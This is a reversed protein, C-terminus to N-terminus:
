NRVSPTRLITLRNITLRKVMILIISDKVFTLITRYSFFLCSLSVPPFFLLPQTVETFIVFLICADLDIKPQDAQGVFENAIFSPYRIQDVLNQLLGTDPKDSRQTMIFSIPNPAALDFLHKREDADLQLAQSIHSL